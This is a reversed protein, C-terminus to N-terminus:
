RLGLMVAAKNLAELEYVNVFVQRGTALTRAEKVVKHGHQESVFVARQGLRVSLSQSPYVKLHERAYVGVDMTNLKTLAEDRERRFREVKNQLLTFAKLLFEDESVEGTAVKEEDKVYAGDKRIAPLVVKTVWDQFARAEWKDSRMVLKYLGSESIVSVRGATSNFLHCMESTHKNKTIVGREDKNLFKLHHTFSGSVHPALEIAECVDRTVFWLDGEMQVVRLQMGMFDFTSTKNM